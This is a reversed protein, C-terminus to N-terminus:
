VAPLAPGPIAEAEARIAHDAALAALTAARSFPERRLPAKKVMGFGDEDMM